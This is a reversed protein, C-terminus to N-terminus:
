SGDDRSSSRSPRRAAGSRSRPAAGPGAHKLANTLAEQVIRYASLDVGAPIAGVDGIRLDVVLGADRMDDVLEPLRSVGPQPGDALDVDDDRRM